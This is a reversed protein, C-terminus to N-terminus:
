LLYNYMHRITFVINDISRLMVSATFGTTLGLRHLLAARLVFLAALGKGTASGARLRIVAVHRNRRLLVATALLRASAVLLFVAAAFFGLVLLRAALGLTLLGLLFAALRLALLGLLLAALRLLALLGLLAALGLLAIRARGATVRAGALAAV